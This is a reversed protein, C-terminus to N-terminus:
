MKSFNRLGFNRVLNEGSGGQAYFDHFGPYISGGSKSFKEAQRTYFFYVREENDNVDLPQWVWSFEGAAKFFVTYRLLRIIFFEAFRHDLQKPIM